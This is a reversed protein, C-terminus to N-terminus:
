QFVSKHTLLCPRMTHLEAKDGPIVGESMDWGKM